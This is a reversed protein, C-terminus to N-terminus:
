SRSKLTVGIHCYNLKIVCRDSPKVELVDTNEDDSHEVNEIVEQRAAVQLQADLQSIMVLQREEEKEGEEKM